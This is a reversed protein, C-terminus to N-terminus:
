HKSFFLWAISVFGKTSGFRCGQALEADLNAGLAIGNGRSIKNNLNRETEQVGLM